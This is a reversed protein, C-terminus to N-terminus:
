KHCFNLQLFWDFIFTKKRTFILTKKTLSQELTQNMLNDLEQHNSRSMAVDRVKRFTTKFPKFCFVDLPQLAHSTHSLLTIM